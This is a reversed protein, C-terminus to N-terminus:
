ITIGRSAMRRGRRGGRLPNLPSLPSADPIPPPEPSSVSEEVEQEVAVSEAAVVDGTLSEDGPPSPLAQVAEVFLDRQGAHFVRERLSFAVDANSSTLYTFAAYAYVECDWAENRVGTPCLWMRARMGNSQKVWVRKEARLQNFYDITYSMPFHMFGPGHKSVERLRYDIRNKIAQTGVQRLQVGGPVPQGQWNFQQVKPKGLIPADVPKAGKIALWHRGRAQATKCFAYVDHTHHGGTDICAAEVRMLQGSAHRIPLLLIDEVKKWLAPSSPDGYIEDHFLGWSEEGRGYARITVAVRNDQVDVGGVVILGAMPCTMAQYAEARAQLQEAKVDNGITEKYPLGLVNNAFEIMAEVDSQAKKWLAAIEVWPRWGIPAYMAPLHFSATRGDGEATPMWYAGEFGQTKWAHEPSGVGCDICHCLITTPDDDRYKFNKWDFFQRHGCEPCAVFYKRQDGAEHLKAINSAGELTPTGNAFIKARRGFNSTRNRALGIPSGQDDVNQPYEDPEELDVYRVSTSKLSNAVTAIAIDLMGGPFKKRLKTNDSGKTGSKRIRKRLAPTSERMPEFRDLEWKKGATGTPFVVLVNGPATSIAHGIFNEGASSGGVQHGKMQVCEVVWSNDFPTDDDHAYRTVTSDAGCLADMIGVLYPTRSNRWKGPEPSSPPLVRYEEAWEAISIQEDPQIAEQLKAIFADRASM